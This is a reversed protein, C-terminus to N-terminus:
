SLYGSGTSGVMALARYTLNITNGEAAEQFQVQTLACGMFQHYFGTTGAAGIENASARHELHIMPMSAGAGSVGSYGGGTWLCRFTIDIPQVQTQKNHDPRGRNFITTITQASTYSFDQVYALIGSVPTAATAWAVGSGSARVFRLEGELMVRVEAM